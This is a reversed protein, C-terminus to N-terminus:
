FPRRTLEILTLPCNYDSSLANKTAMKGVLWYYDDRAVTFSLWQVQNYATAGYLDFTGCTQVLDDDPISRLSFTLIGNATVARYNIYIYWLGKSLATEYQWSDNIAPTNQFSFFGMVPGATYTTILGNGALMQPFLHPITYRRPLAVLGNQVIM